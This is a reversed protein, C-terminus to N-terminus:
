KNRPSRSKALTFHWYQDVLIYTHGVSINNALKTYIYVYRLIDVSIAHPVFGLRPKEGRQGNGTFFSLSLLRLVSLSLSRLRTYCKANWAMLAKNPRPVIFISRDGVAFTDRRRVPAAARRRPPAATM